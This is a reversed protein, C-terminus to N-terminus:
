RSPWAQRPRYSRMAAIREVLTPHSYHFFSYLPHPTLNSLSKRSLKILANSLPDAGEVARVAFRDAQYEFCRSIATGLPTLFFALPSLAFMFIVVAAHASKQEFGFAQYLPLYDVCIGLIYFGALSALVSLVLSKIVHHLKEHGIEHALVALLEPTALQEILTDYLVIRKNRGFGTFFANAHSSRRSGDMLYVGKIHFDTRRTLAEVEERLSADEIPKFKNFLPAIWVPYIFILFIQVSTLLLFAYFWWYSGGSDILFFVGYLVPVGIALSILSEKILDTIWLKLTTKNFGFKEEIVFTYILRFPIEILFFLFSLALVFFIGQTHPGLGPIRCITDLEGFFGYAVMVFLVATDLADQTLGLKKRTKLYDFAREQFMRDFHSALEPPLEGICSRAYRLNLFELAANAAWEIFLAAFYLLRILLASM